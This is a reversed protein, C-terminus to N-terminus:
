TDCEDDAWGLVKDTWQSTTHGDCKEQTRTSSGASAGMETLVGACAAGGRIAFCLWIFDDNKAAMVRKQALCARLGPTVEPTTATVCTRCSM